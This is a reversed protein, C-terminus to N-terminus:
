TIKHQSWKKQHTTQSVWVAPPCKRSYILCLFFSLSFFFWVWAHFSAVALCRVDDRTSSRRESKWVFEVDDLLEKRDPRIKHNANRYRQQNVWNMLVKDQAYGRPMMGDGNKRKFELLKEYHQHWLKDNNDAIDVRWVFELEDLLVKRDLRMKNNSHRHRQRYVWLGLSKDQEYEYRFPVLCHGNKRKYELLKEYHQHWNKDFTNNNSSSESKWVFELGELLDKRDQRIKNKTHSHRQSTVWQGLSKDQEYRQPVICDGHKRKYEVLKAYQQNWKRENNDVGEAKWVFKLEELLHKRDQRLKNKTHCKRQSTVWHGLSKDQEYRQPVICDGNKRKYEVLKEYQQNWLKDLETMAETMAERKTKNRREIQKLKSFAINVAVKVTRFVINL